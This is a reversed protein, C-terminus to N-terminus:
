YPKICDGKDVWETSLEGGLNVQCCVKGASICQEALYAFGQDHSKGRLTSAIASVCDKLRVGKKATATCGKSGTCVKEKSDWKQGKNCCRRDDTNTTCYLNIECQENSTCPGKGLGLKATTPNCEKREFNYGYICSMCYRAFAGSALLTGGYMECYSDYDTIPIDNLQSISCKAGPYNACETITSKLVCKQTIPNWKQGPRCFHHEGLILLFNNVTTM